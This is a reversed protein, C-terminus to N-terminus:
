RNKRRDYVPIDAAPQPANKKNSKMMTIPHFFLLTFLYHIISMVLAYLTLATLVNLYGATKLIYSTLDIRLLLAAFNLLFILIVIWLFGSWMGKRDQNSPAIHSSIAFSLYLFLWFQWTIINTTSFIMGFVTPISAVLSSLSTRADILVSLIGKGNPLLFSLLLFLLLTGFIMPAAGIFFNGLTQYISSKKYSHNVHGLGGTEKNPRFLAIEVVKHHFIKAFLYHGLEHFPTGIWATWLIGKWGLAKLYNENSLKQLKSLLYGLLFFVGFIGALQIATVKLTEIILIIYPNDM